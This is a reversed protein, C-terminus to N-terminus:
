AVHPTEETEDRVVEFGTIMARFNNWGARIVQAVHVLFFGCFGITLWFHLWRAVEYGSAGLFSPSLIRTIIALQIPKYIALGTVLSGFGMVVVGTYAFRQAGNFKARPLPSKRIKLDHLVVQFAEGFSKRTPLLYRWEGSFAVFLVYLLGNLAFFWAFTFHWAMGEALRSSLNFREYFQEPFFHLLTHSGFGVRYVDNAWYILLGSWMMVFLVPFNIWHFWRIALPHKRELRKM